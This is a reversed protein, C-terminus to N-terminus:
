EEGRQQVHGGGGSWTRRKEARQKMAEGVHKPPRVGEQATKEAVDDRLSADAGADGEDHGEGDAAREGDGEAGEEGDNQTTAVIEYRTPPLVVAPCIDSPLHTGQTIHFTNRADLEDLTM